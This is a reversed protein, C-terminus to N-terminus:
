RGGDMSNLQHWIWRWGRDREGALQRRPVDGRDRRASAHSDRRGRQLPDLAVALHKLLDERGARGHVPDAGAKPREHGVDDSGIELTVQLAVQQSAVGGPRARLQGILNDPARDRDARIAQQETVRADPRDDDLTKGRQQIRAVHRDDWADPRQAGAAIEGRRGMGEQRQEAFPADPIPIARHDRAGLRQM